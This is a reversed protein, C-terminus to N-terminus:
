CNRGEKIFKWIRTSLWIISCWSIFLLIAKAILGHREPKAYSDVGFHLKWISKYGCITDYCVLESESPRFNVTPEFSWKYTFDKDLHYFVCVTKGLPVEFVSQNKNFNVTVKVNYDTRNGYVNKTDNNAFCIDYGKLDFPVQLINSIANKLTPKFIDDLSVKVTALSEDIEDRTLEIKEYPSFLAFFLLIPPLLVVLTRILKSKNGVM